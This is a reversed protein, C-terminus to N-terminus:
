RIRIRINLIVHVINLSGPFDRGTLNHSLMRHSEHSGFKVSVYKIYYMQFSPKRYYTAQNKPYILM